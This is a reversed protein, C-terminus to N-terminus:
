VLESNELLSYLRLEFFLKITESTELKDLEFLTSAIGNSIISESGLITLLGSLWNSFKEITLPMADPM